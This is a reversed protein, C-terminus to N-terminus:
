KQIKIPPRIENINSKAQKERYAGWRIEGETEGYKRIMNELTPVSRKNYNEKAIEAENLPLGKFITFYEITGPIRSMRM